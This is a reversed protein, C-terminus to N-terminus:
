IIYAHIFRLIYVYRVSHQTYEGDYQRIDVFPLIYAKAFRLLELLLTGHWGNSAIKKHIFDIELAVWFDHRLSHSVM